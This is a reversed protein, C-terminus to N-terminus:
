SNIQIIWQEIHLGYLDVKSVCFGCCTVDESRDGSVHTFLFIAPHDMSIKSCVLLLLQSREFMQECTEEREEKSWRVGYVSSRAYVCMVFSEVNEVFTTNREDDKLIDLERAVLLRSFTTSNVRFRRNEARTEAAPQQSFFGRRSESCHILCSSLRHSWREALCM